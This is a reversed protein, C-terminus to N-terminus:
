FLIAARRLMEPIPITGDRVVASSVADSSDYWMDLLWREQQIERDGCNEHELECGAGAGNRM